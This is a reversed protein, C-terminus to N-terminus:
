LPWKEPMGSQQSKVLKMKVVIQINQPIFAYVSLKARKYAPMLLLTFFSSFSSYFTYHICFAPSSARTVFASSVLLLNSEFSTSETLRSDTFFYM